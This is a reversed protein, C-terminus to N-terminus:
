PPCNSGPECPREATQGIFRLSVFEAPRLPAVGVIVVFRGTDLDNQTMTTRDCRVFFAADANTGTLAGTSWINLLFDQITRVINAWLAQGNPEFVTWQLGRVISQELFVLLRRVNVYQLNRDPSTTRASWIVIGQDPLTRLVNIGRSVLSDGAASSIEHSLGRVGLLPVAAPATHVGRHADVRAYAGCVHGGPPVAITRGDFGAVVLWPYYYAAYSSRAPPQHAEDPIPPAPSQLVCILDKRREAYAVLKAAADPARHEDPCCLISFQHAALAELGAHLADPSSVLTACCEHGGNDFFGRVALPLFGTVDTGVAEKFDHFSTLRVPELDHPGIGLFAATSTPVGEIPQVHTPLEEVYIGPFLTETM